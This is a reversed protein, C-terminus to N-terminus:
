LQIGLRKLVQKQGASREPFFKLDTGDARVDVTTSPAKGTGPITFWATNAGEDHTFTIGATAAAAEADTISVTKV